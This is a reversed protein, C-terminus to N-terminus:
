ASPASVNANIASLRNMRSQVDYIALFLALSFFAVKADEILSVESGEIAAVQRNLLVVTLVILFLTLFASIFLVKVLVDHSSTDLHPLVIGLSLVCVMMTALAFTACYVFWSVGKGGFFRVDADLRFLWFLAWPAQLFVAACYWLRASRRRPARDCEM